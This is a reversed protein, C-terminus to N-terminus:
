GLNSAIERQIPQPEGDVSQELTTTTQNNELKININSEVKTAEKEGEAHMKNRAEDNLSRLSNFHFLGMGGMTNKYPTRSVEESEEEEESDERLMNYFSVGMGGITNKYPNFNERDIETRKKISEPASILQEVAFDKLNLNVAEVNMTGVTSRLAEEGEAGRVRLDRAKDIVQEEQAETTFMRALGQDGAALTMGAMQKESVQGSRVLDNLQIKLEEPSKDVLDEMSVLGRYATLRKILPDFEGISALAQQNYTNTTFSEAQKDNLGLSKLAVNSALMAGTSEAGMDSARGVYDNTARTADYAASGVGVIASLTKGIPGTSGLFDNASQLNIGGAGKSLFTLTSNTLAQAEKHERRAEKEELRFQEEKQKKEAREAKTLGKDSEFPYRERLAALYGEKVGEVSGSSVAAAKENARDQIYAANNKAWEPDRFVPENNFIFEEENGARPTGSHPDYGTVLDVSSAGTMYMQHQIQQQHKKAADRPPFRTTGWKFEALNLDDGVEGDRGTIVGDVSTGQNPKTPDTILGLDTITKNFKEEFWKKGLEEGRTGASFMENHRRAAVDPNDKENISSKIHGLWTDGYPSEAMSTGVGTSTLIGTRNALWEPSGQEAESVNLGKSKLNALVNEKVRLRDPSTEPLIDKPTISAVSSEIEPVVDSIAPTDVSSSITTPVSVPTPINSAVVRSATVEEEEGLASALDKTTFPRNFDVPNIGGTIMDAYNGLSSMQGEKGGEGMFGAEDMLGHRALMDLNSTGHYESGITPRIFNTATGKSNDSSLKRGTIDKALGGLSLFGKVRAELDKQKDLAAKQMPNLKDIEAQSKYMGVYPLGTLTSIASPRNWYDKREREAQSAFEYDRLEKYKPNYGGGGVNLTQKLHKSFRPPLAEPLPLADMHSLPTDAGFSAQMGKSTRPVQIALQKALNEQVERSTGEKLYGGALNFLVNDVSQYGISFDEKSLGESHGQIAPLADTYRSEEKLSANVIRDFTRQQERTIDPAEITTTVGRQISGMTLNDIQRFQEPVGSLDHHTVASPKMHEPIDGIQNSSTVPLGTSQLRANLVAENTDAGVLHSDPDNFETEQAALWQDALDGETGLSDQWDLNGDVDSEGGMSLDDYGGDWNGLTDEDYDAM